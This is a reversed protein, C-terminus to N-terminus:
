DVLIDANRETLHCPISRQTRMVPTVAYLVNPCTQELLLMVFWVTHPFPAHMYQLKVMQLLDTHSLLFPPM